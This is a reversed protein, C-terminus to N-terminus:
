RASKGVISNIPTGCEPRRDTSFRIDYGCAVCRGGWMRLSRRLRRSVVIAPLAGFLVVLFWWPLFFAREDEETYDYFGDGIAGTKTAAIFKRRTAEPSRYWFGWHEAVEEEFDESTSMGSQRYIDFPHPERPLDVRLKARAAEDHPHYVDTRIVVGAADRWMLFLLERRQFPDSADKVYSWTVRAFTWQAWIWLVITMVCIVLAVATAYRFLRGRGNLAGRSDKM